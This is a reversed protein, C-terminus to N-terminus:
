ADAGGDRKLDAPMPGHAVKCGAKYFGALLYGLDSYGLYLKNKAEPGLSQLVKEAIRGAGYGGRAFWVADFRSDNAVEILADAREADTGAFHGSTLFCQTHFHLAARAGYLKDAIARVDEALQPTIRSAPAVIAINTTSAIAHTRKYRGAM